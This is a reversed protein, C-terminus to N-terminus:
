LKKHSMQANGEQKESQNEEKNKLKIAVKNKNARIKASLNCMTSRPARQKALLFTM